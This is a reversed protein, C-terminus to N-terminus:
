PQIAVRLAGMPVPEPTCIAAALQVVALCIFAAVVPQLRKSVFVLAALAM